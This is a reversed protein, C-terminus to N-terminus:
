SVGAYSSPFGPPQAEESLTHIPNQTGATRETYPRALSTTKQKSMIYLGAGGGSTFGGVGNHHYRAVPGEGKQSGNGPLPDTLNRRHRQEASELMGHPM